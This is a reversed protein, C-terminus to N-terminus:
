NNFFQTLCHILCEVFHPSVFFLLSFALEVQLALQAFLYFLALPIKHEFSSAHSSSKFPSFPLPSDIKPTIPTEITM